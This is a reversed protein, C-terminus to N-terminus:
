WRTEAAEAQKGWEEFRNTSSQRKASQRRLALSALEALAQLFGYVQLSMCHRCALLMGRGQSRESDRLQLLLPLREFSGSYWSLIHVSLRLRRFKMYGLLQSAAELVETSLSPHWSFWAHVGLKGSSAIVSVQYLLTPGSFLSLCVMRCFGCAGILLISFQHRRGAWRSLLKFDRAPGVPNCVFVPCM